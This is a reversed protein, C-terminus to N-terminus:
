SPNLMKVTYGLEFFRQPIKNDMKQNAIRDIADQCEQPGKECIQAKSKGLLEEIRLITFAWIANEQLNGRGEVADILHEEFKKQLPEVAVDLFECKQLTPSPTRAVGHCVLTVPQGIQLADFLPDAIKQAKFFVLVEIAPEVAGKIELIPPRSRKDLTSVKGTVLLWKDKYRTDAQLENEKYESALDGVRIPIIDKYIEALRAGLQTGELDFATNLREKDEYVLTKIIAKQFPTAKFEERAMATNLDLSFGSPNGGACFCLVAFALGFLKIITKTRLSARKM